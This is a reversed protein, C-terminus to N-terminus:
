LAISNNRVYAFNIKAHIDLTIFSTGNKFVPCKFSKLDAISLGKDGRDIRITEGIVTEGGTSTLLVESLYNCIYKQAKPTLDAYVAKSNLSFSIEVCYLFYGIKGCLLGQKIRNRIFEREYNSLLYHQKTESDQIMYEM